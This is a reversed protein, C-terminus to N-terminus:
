LTVLRQAGAEHAAIDAASLPRPPRVALVLPELDGQSQRRVVLVEADIPMDGLRAILEGVTM